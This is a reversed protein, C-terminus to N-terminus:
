RQLSGDDGSDKINKSKKNTNVNGINNLNVMQEPFHTTNYVVIISLLSSRGKISTSLHGSIEKNGFM